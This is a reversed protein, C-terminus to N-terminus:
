FKMVYYNMSAAPPVVSYPRAVPFYLKLFFPVHVDVSGMRASLSDGKRTLLAAAPNPEHTLSSLSFVPTPARRARALHSQPLCMGGNSIHM